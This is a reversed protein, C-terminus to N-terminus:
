RTIGRNTTTVGRGFRREVLFQATSLVSVIALYWLAAVILMPIVQYNATYIGQVVTLLDSGAIVSVLATSKLMTITDNGMPPIIVRMAQPLVIRRMTLRPRMGLAYAAELQGRDVSLIGARIVEAAYAMENLSLALVAAVTGTIVVSTPRSWLIDGSFPVTLTLTPFLAGLFGFFIIQVLLPTGRFVWVFLWSVARLVPNASLRMIAIATGGATGLLQAVVTLWVTTLVGHLIYPKFLYEGIVDLRLNPSRLLAQLFAALGAVALVAAVWRGPRRLPVVRLPTGAVSAATAADADVSM